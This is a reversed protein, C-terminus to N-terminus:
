VLLGISALRLIRMQKAIMQARQQDNATKTHKINQWKSHGKLNTASTHILRKAVTTIILDLSKLM